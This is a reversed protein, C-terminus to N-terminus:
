STGRSCSRCSRSRSCPSPGRKLASRARADVAAAARERLGRKWRHGGRVKHVPEGQGPAPIAKTTLKVEMENADHSAAGRLVKSFQSLDLGFAIYNLHKSTIRLTGPVYVADADLKVHLHAGDANQTPSPRASPSHPPARATTPQRGPATISVPPPMVLHMEEGTVLVDLRKGFKELTQTFRDLRAIGQGSLTAQVFVPYM